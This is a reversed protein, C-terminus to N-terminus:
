EVELSDCVSILTCFCLVVSAALLNQAIETM